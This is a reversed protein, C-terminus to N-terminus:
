QQNGLTLGLQLCHSAIWLDNNGIIQGKRRLHLRMRGYQEGVQPDLRLAPIAQIFTDLLQLAVSPNARNEAGFRLEGYTVASIVRDGPSQRLVHDAM